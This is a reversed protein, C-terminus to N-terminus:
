PTKDFCFVSLERRGTWGIHTREFLHKCSIKLQKHGCENMVEHKNVYLSSHCITM